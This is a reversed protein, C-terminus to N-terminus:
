QVIFPFEKSSFAINSLDANWGYVCWYYVRGVELPLPAIGDKKIVM